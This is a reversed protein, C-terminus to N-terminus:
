AETGLWARMARADAVEADLAADGRRRVWRWGHDVMRAPYAPWVRWSGVPVGAYHAVIHRPPFLRTLALVLKGRKGGTEAMRTAFGREARRGADQLLLAEAAAVLRAPVAATAPDGTERRGM